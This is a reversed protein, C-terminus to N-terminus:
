AKSVRFLSASLSSLSQPLVRTTHPILVHAFLDALQESNWSCHARLDRLDPLHVVKLKEGDRIDEDLVILLYQLKPVQQLARLLWAM